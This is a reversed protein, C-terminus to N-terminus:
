LPAVTPITGSGETVVQYMREFQERPTESDPATGGGARPVIALKILGEHVLAPLDAAAGVLYGLIFGPFRDDLGADTIADLTPAGALSVVWEADPNETIAEEIMEAPLTWGPLYLYAAGEPQVIKSVVVLGRERLVTEFSFRIEELGDAKPLDLSLLIVRGEAGIFDAVAEASFTSTSELRQRGATDLGQRGRPKFISWLSMALALLCVAVIWPTRSEKM